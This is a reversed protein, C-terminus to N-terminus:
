CNPTDCFAKATACFSFLERVWSASVACSARATLIWFTRSSNSANIRVIASLSDKLPIVSAIRSIALAAILRESAKTGKNGANVIRPVTALTLSPLRNKAPSGPNRLVKEPLANFRLEPPPTGPNPLESVTGAISVGPSNTSFLFATDLSPSFFRVLNLLPALNWVPPVAPFTILLRPEAPVLVFVIAPPSIKCIATDCKLSNLSSVLFSM